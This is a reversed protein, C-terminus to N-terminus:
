SRAFRKLGAVFRSRLVDVAPLRYTSLWFGTSRDKTGPEIEIFLLSENMSPLRIGLTRQPAIVEILGEVIDEPTIQIQLLSGVQPDSGGSIM